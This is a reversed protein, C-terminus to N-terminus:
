TSSPLSYDSQGMANVAVYKAVVQESLELNFPESKFVSMPVSCLRNTIITQSTRTNCHSLQEHWEGDKSLFEIIYSTVFSGGNDPLTWDFTVSTLTNSSIPANPKSPVEAAM